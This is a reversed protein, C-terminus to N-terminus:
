RFINSSGGLFFIGSRELPMRDFSISRSAIERPGLQQDEVFRGITQIRGGGFVHQALQNRDCRRFSGGHEKRRMLQGLDLQDGVMDSDDILALHDHRARQVIHLRLILPELHHERIGHLKGACQTSPTSYTRCSPRTSEIRALWLTSAMMSCARDKGPVATSLKGTVSM